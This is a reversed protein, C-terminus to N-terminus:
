PARGPWSASVRCLPGGIPRPARDAEIIRREGNLLDIRRRKFETLQVFPPEVEHQRQQGHRLCVRHPHARQHRMVALIRTTSIFKEDSRDSHFGQGNGPELNELSSVAVFGDGMACLIIEVKQERLDLKGALDVTPLNGFPAPLGLRHQYICGCQRPILGSGNGSAHQEALRARRVLEDADDLRERPLTIWTSPATRACGSARSRAGEVQKEAANLRVNLQGHEM